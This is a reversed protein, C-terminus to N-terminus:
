IAVYIVNSGRAVGVRTNHKGNFTVNLGELRM